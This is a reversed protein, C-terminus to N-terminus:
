IATKFPTLIFYIVNVYTVDNDIILFIEQIIAKLKRMYTDDFYILSVIMLMLIRKPSVKDYTM